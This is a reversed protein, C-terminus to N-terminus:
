GRNREEQVLNKLQSEVIAALMMLSRRAGDPLM